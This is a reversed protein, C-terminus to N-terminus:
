SCSCIFTDFLSSVSAEMGNGLKAVSVFKRDISSAAVTLIWPAVNQVTGLGPGQNGASCSTLIGRKMAHFSGIAIPDDFFSKSMGGISISILDVGDQIADDFAALLDMDSCGDGWCVKYMAVRASPLGGRATGEAIGYLSAGKILAGAATSSTHTGHGDTDVPSPEDLTPDIERGLHYYRAGIVKSFCNIIYKKLNKVFSFQNHKSQYIM